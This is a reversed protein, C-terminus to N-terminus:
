GPRFGFGVPAYSCDINDQVNNKGEPNNAREFVRLSSDSSITLFLSCFYIFDKFFKTVNRRSDGNTDGDGATAGDVILM